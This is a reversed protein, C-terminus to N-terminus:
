VGNLAYRYIRCYPSLSFPLSPFTFTSSFQGFALDWLTPRCGFDPVLLLLALPLSM